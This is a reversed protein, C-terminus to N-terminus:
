TGVCQRCGCIGRVALLQSMPHGIRNHAQAPSRQDEGGAQMGHLDHGAHQLLAQCDTTRDLHQHLAPM